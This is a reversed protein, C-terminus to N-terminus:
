GGYTSTMEEIQMGLDRWVTTVVSGGLVPHGRNHFMFLEPMQHM